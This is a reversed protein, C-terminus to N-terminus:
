GNNATDTAPRKVRLSIYYVVLGTLLTALGLFSEVPRELLLYVMMFFTVGLFILPTVPYLWTRYPRPLDPQTWRLVMVGLVALFSSLTLSFQVYELVSEFSGTLLMLTVIVLQLLIAAAPVGSATTRSFTALLPIDEGMVKTVRPGIWTMASVASILGICILAGVIQGGTQGFIQKGAILAVEIQGVMLEKPTTYLFVLNLLVYLAMVILTAMLLARPVTRAPDRIEGIIYTSANWGSYSYMVFVLSVFFPAAMLHSFDEGTPMFSIPQPNDVAFGAAIFGVILVVKLVTSWNQFRGGHRIGFLHVAGVGWAVVLGSVVPSPAGPWIGKLYSGFAISALAIPAAFGVTASLWGAMVGVAPHYIRSLFNYEGGSRPLAAALEGYCLAGCLAVVGGTIWLMMLAFGSQIGALQFGLSTFVGIGIMDAVAISTATFTSIGGGAPGGAASGAVGDTNAGGNAPATTKVDDTM